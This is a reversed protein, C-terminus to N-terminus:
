APTWFALEAFRSLDRYDLTWVACGYQRALVVLSADQLTGTWGPLSRVLAVAEELADLELPVVTASAELVALKERAVREGLAQLLLKHVECLIVFPVLLEWRERALQQFGRACRAHQTDTRSLAAVFPGTDVVLRSM